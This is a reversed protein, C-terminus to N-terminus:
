ASDRPHPSSTPLRAPPSLPTRGIPSGMRILTEVPKQSHALLDDEWKIRGQEFLLLITSGGFAFYGHEDGRCSVGGRLM